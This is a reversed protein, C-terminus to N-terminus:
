LVLGVPHCRSTRPSLSPTQDIEPGRTWPLVVGLLVHVDGMKGGPGSVM